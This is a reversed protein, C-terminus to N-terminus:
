RLHYKQSVFISLNSGCVPWWYRYWYIVVEPLFQIVFLLFITITLSPNQFSSTVFFLIDGVVLPKHLVEPHLLQVQTYDNLGFGSYALIRLLYAQGSSALVLSAQVVLGLSNVQVTLVVGGLALGRRHQLAHLRAPTYLTFMNEMTQIGQLEGQIESTAPALGFKGLM